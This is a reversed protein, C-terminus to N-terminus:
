PDSILVRFPMADASTPVGLCRVTALIRREANLGAM